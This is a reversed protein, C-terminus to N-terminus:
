VNNQRKMVVGAEEIVVGGGVGDQLFKPIGEMLETAKVRCLGM